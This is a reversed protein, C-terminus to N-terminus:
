TRNNEDRIRAQHRELMNTPKFEDKKEIKSTFGFVLSAGSVRTPMHTIKKCKRCFFKAMPDTKTREYYKKASEEELHKCEYCRRKM